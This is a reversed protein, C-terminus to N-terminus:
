SRKFRRWIIRIRPRAICPYFNCISNSLSHPLVMDEISSFRDPWSDRLYSGSVNGITRRFEARHKRKIKSRISKAMTYYASIIPFFLNTKQKEKFVAMSLRGGDDVVLEIQHLDLRKTENRDDPLSGIENRNGTV